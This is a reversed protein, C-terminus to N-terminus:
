RSHANVAARRAARKKSLYAFLLKGIVYGTLAMFTSTILAGHLLPAGIDRLLDFIATEPNEVLGRFENWDIGDDDSFLVGVQYEMFFIPAYTLPNSIWVCLLAAPLNARALWCFFVAPVMQFPMPTFGWFMGIALGRCISTQTMNIMDTHLWQAVISKPNDRLKRLLRREGTRIHYWLSRFLKESM